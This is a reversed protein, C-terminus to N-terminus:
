RTEELFDRSVDSTARLNTDDAMSPATPPAGPARPAATRGHSRSGDRVYSGARGPRRNAANEAM